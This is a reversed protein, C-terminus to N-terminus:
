MYNILCESGSKQSVWFESQRERLQRPSWLEIDVIRADLDSKGVEGTM